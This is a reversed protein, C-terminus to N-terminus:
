KRKKKKGVLWKRKRETDREAALAEPLPRWYRRVLWVDWVVLVMLLLISWVRAALYAVKEYQAFSVVLGLWGVVQTKTLLSKSFGRISPSKPYRRKLWVRSVLGALVLVAFVALYGIHEFRVPSAALFRLQSELKSLNFLLGLAVGLIAGITVELPKHGLVERLKRAPASKRDGPLADILMNIAAAQEGSARRVGFSDYMVIAALLATLGFYRSQPGDLLLATTALSSVVASHVSPMGGSAYLYRFDIKGRSAALSFKITQAILWTAFPILLYPNYLM